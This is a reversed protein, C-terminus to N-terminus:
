RAKLGHTSVGNSSQSHFSCYTTEKSCAAQSCKKREGAGGSGPAFNNFHPLDPVARRVVREGVQDPEVVPPEADKAFAAGMNRRIARQADDRGRVSPVPRRNRQQSIRLSVQAVGFDGHRGSTSQHQAARSRQLLGGFEPMLRECPKGSISFVPAVRDSDAVRVQPQPPRRPVVFRSVADTVVVRSLVEDPKVGARVSAPEGRENRFKEVFAM